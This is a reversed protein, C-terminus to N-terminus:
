FLGEVMQIIFHGQQKYYIAMHIMSVYRVVDIYKCLSKSLYKLDFDYTIIYKVLKRTCILDKGTLLGNPQCIRTVDGGTDTYGDSCAYQVSEGDSIVHIGDSNEDPSLWVANIIAPM